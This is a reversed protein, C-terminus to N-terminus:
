KRRKNEWDVLRAIARVSPETKELRGAEWQRLELEWPELPSSLGGRQKLYEQSLDYLKSARQVMRSGGKAMRRKAAILGMMFRNYSHKLDVVARVRRIADTHSGVRTPGLGSWRVWPWAACRTMQFVEGQFAGAAM